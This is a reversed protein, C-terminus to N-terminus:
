APNRGSQPQEIPADQRDVLDGLVVVHSMNLSIELNKLSVSPRTNCNGPIEHEETWFTGHDARKFFREGIRIRTGAPYDKLETYPM